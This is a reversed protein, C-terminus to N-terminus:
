NHPGVDGRVQGREAAARLPPPACVLDGEELRDARRDLVQSRRHQDPALSAARLGSAGARLLSPRRALGRPVFDLGPAVRVRNAYARVVPAIEMAMKLSKLPKRCSKWGM